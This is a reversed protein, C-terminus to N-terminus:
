QWGPGRTLPPPEAEVPNPLATDRPCGLRDLVEDKSVSLYTARGHMLMDQVTTDGVGAALDKVSMVYMVGDDQSQATFLGYKKWTDLDPEMSCSCNLKYSLEYLLPLDRGPWSWKGPGTGTTAAGLYFRATTAILNM